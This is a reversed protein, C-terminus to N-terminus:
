DKLQNSARVACTQQRLNDCRWDEEGYKVRHMCRLSNTSQQFDPCFKQRDISALQCQTLGDLYIAM